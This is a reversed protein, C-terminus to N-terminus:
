YFIVIVDDHIKKIFFFLCKTGEDAEREQRREGKV